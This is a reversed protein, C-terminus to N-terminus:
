NSRVSQGPHLRVRAAVCDMNTIVRAIFRLETQDRSNASFDRINWFGLRLTTGAQSPAAHAPGTCCLVLGLILPCLRVPCFPRSM